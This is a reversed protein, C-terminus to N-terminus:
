LVYRIGAVLILMLVWIGLARDLLALARNIDAAGPERGGGIWPRAHVEGEYCAPGGLLLQLSGAGSAMVPGANPSDWRPAGARWAAIGSRFQGALSYALATMRAPVWNLADDIRAAAWGFYFFRANRYGWMADLTNALRYLVVGPAGALLYWFIAGFVADNGNELVSEVTGRAMDAESMRYTDRSVILGMRKRAEPIDNALLAEAIQWAHRRLSQRGIAWYLIFSDVVWRWPNDPLLYILAVFPIVAMCWAVSGRSRRPLGDTWSVATQVAAHFAQSKRDPFINLQKEIRNAFSGFGVLPHWRKPEGLVADLLIASLVSVLTQSEFM